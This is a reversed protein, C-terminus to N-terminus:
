CGPLSRAAASFSFCSFPPRSRTIQRYRTPRGLLELVEFPKVIYDEAGMRLGRVRDNSANKATLFIVPTGTPRIYELLSFGDVGPLMIDLLVLDFRERELVDAASLGDYVCQCHYGARRLSLRILEAIPKEDEVILIRIM